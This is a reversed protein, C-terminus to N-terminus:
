RKGPLVVLKKGELRYKVGLGELSKMVDQLSNDRNVEGEFVLDPIGQEYVV